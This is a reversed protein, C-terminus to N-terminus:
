KFRKKKKSSSSIEDLGDRLKVYKNLFSVFIVILIILLAILTIKKTRNDFIADMVDASLIIIAVFLSGVISLYLTKADQPDNPWNM